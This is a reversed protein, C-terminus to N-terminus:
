AAQRREPTTMPAAPVAAARWARRIKWLDRVMRGVSRLNTTSAGDDYRVCVPVETVALGLQACATLLECDFEFGDCGDALAQDFSAPTNEPIVKHAGAGRHGLLLPRTSSATM